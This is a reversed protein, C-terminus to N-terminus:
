RALVTGQPHFKLCPSFHQRLGLPSAPSFTTPLPATSHQVGGWVPQAIGAGPLLYLLAEGSLRPSGQRGGVYPCEARSGEAKRLSLSGATALAEADSFHWSPPVRAPPPGPQQGRPGEWRM